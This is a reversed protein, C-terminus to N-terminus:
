VKPTCHAINRGGAAAVDVGSVDLELGAVQVTNCLADAVTTQSEDLQTLVRVRNVNTEYGVVYLGIDQGELYTDAVQEVTHPDLDPGTACGALIAATALATALTKRNM